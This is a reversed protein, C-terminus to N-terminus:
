ARPEDHGVEWSTANAKLLARVHDRLGECVKLMAELDRGVLEVIRGGQHCIFAIQNLNRGIAGLEAVARKLAALETKPLPALSRLHARVLVSVYTAAPMRRAAARDRLLIRDGPELRMMLRASRSARRRDPICESETAEATLLMQEILRRLLASESLGNRRAVAAFQQRTDASVWTSIHTSDSM